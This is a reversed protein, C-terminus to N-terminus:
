AANKGDETRRKDLAAMNADLYWRFRVCGEISGYEDRPEDDLIRHSAEHEFLRNWVRSVTRMDDDTLIEAAGGLDKAALM